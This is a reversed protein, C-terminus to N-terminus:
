QWHAADRSCLGDVLLAGCNSCTPRQPGIYRPDPLQQTDEQSQLPLTYQKLLWEYDEDNPRTDCVVFPALPQIREAIRAKILGDIAEILQAKSPADGSYIRYQTLANGLNHLEANM